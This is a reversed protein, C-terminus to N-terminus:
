LENADKDLIRALVEPGGDSQLVIILHQIDGYRDLANLDDLDKEWGPQIEAKPIYLKGFPNDGVPRWKLVLAFNALEDLRESSLMRTENTQGLVLRVYRRKDDDDRILFVHLQAEKLHAEHEEKARVTKVRLQDYYLWFYRASAWHALPRRMIQIALALVHSYSFVSTIDRRYSSGMEIYGGIADTEADEVDDGIRFRQLSALLARQASPRLAGIELQWFKRTREVLLDVFDPDSSITKFQLEEQLHHEIYLGLDTLLTDCVPTAAKAALSGFFLFCVFIRGLM